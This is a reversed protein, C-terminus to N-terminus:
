RNVTSKNSQIKQLNFSLTSNKVTQEFRSQFLDDQHSSEQSPSNDTVSTEVVKTSAMKLTLYFYSTCM